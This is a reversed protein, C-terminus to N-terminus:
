KTSVYTAIQIITDVGRSSGYDKAVNAVSTGYYHSAGPTLYKTELLNGYKQAVETIIPAFYACYGCGQRGIMVVITENKSESAIDQAKIEKFASIDYSASNSESSESSNSENKSTNSNGSGNNIVVIMTILSLALITFVLALLLNTKKEINVIREETTLEVYEEEEDDDSSKVEEVEEVVEEEENELEEIEEKKKAM